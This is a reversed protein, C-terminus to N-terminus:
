DLSGNGGAHDWLSRPKQSTRSYIIRSSVETIIVLTAAVFIDLVAQQGAVTIFATGLFFGFMFSMLLLSIRRWPNLFWQGLRQVITDFLNNLRTNQM